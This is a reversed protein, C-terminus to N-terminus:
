ALMKEQLFPWKLWGRLPERTSEQRGVVPLHTREIFVSGAWPLAPIGGPTPDAGGGVVAARQSPLPFHDSPDRFHPFGGLLTGTSRPPPIASGGVGDLAYAGGGRWM